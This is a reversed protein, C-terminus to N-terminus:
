LTNIQECYVTITLTDALSSYTYDNDNIDWSINILFDATNIAGAYFTYYGTVIGNEADYSFETGGERDETLTIELPLNSTKTLVVKFKYAIETVQTGNDNTVSLGYTFSDGPLMDEFDLEIVESEKATSLEVIYKAVRASDFSDQTKVFASYATGATFVTLFVLLILCKIKTSNNKFLNM